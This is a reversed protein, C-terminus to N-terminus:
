TAEYDEFKFRSIEEALRCPALIDAPTRSESFVDADDYTDTVSKHKLDNLFLPKDM